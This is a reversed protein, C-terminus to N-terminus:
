RHLDDPITGLRDAFWDAILQRAPDADDANATAIGRPRRSAARGLSLVRM